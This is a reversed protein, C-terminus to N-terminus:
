LTFNYIMCIATDSCLHSFENTNKISEPVKDRSINEFGENQFFKEATTTLLYLNEVGMLKAYAIIARTLKKGIGKGQSDPIVAASRLLANENYIELGICGRLSDDFWVLFNDLHNSVDESPLDVEELLLVIEQLDSLLAARINSDREDM